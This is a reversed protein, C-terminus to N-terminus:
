AGASAPIITTGAPGDPPEPIQADPGHMLEKWILLLFLISLVSYIGMFGLLSFLGNGASVNASFGHETRMLGYIVWPQRGVETTV